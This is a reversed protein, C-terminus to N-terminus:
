YNKIPPTLKFNKLMSITKIIRGLSPPPKKCRGTTFYGSSISALSLNTKRNFRSSKPKALPVPPVQPSTQKITPTEISKVISSDVQTSEDSTRKSTQFDFFDIHASNVSKTSGKHRLRHSLASSLTHRVESFTMSTPKAPETSTSTGVAATSSTSSSSSSKNKANIKQFFSLM